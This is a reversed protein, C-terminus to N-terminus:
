HKIQVILFLIVNSIKFDVIFINQASMSIAENEFLNLVAYLKVEYKWAKNLVACKTM